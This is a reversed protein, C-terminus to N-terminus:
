LKNWDISRQYLVYFYPFCCCCIFLVIFAISSTYIPRKLVFSKIDSKKILTNKDASNISIKGNEDIIKYTVTGNELEIDNRNVIDFHQGMEKKQGSEM